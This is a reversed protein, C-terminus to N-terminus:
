WAEQKTTFKVEKIKLTKSEKLNSWDNIDVTRTYNVSAPYWGGELSNKIMVTYKDVDKRLVVEGKRLECRALYRTVHNSDETVDEYLADNDRSFLNFRPKAVKYSDDEGRYWLAVLVLNEDAPMPEVTEPKQVIAVEGSALLAAIADRYGGCYGTHLLDYVGSSVEIDGRATETQRWEEYRKQLEVNSPQLTWKKRKEVTEASIDESKTTM